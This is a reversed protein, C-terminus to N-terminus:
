QKIICEEPVHRMGGHQWAFIFCTTCSDEGSHLITTIKEMPEKTKGTRGNKVPSVALFPKFFAM